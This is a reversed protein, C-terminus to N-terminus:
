RAPTAERRSGGGLRRLLVRVGSGLAAAGVCLILLVLASASETLVFFPIFEPAFLDRYCSAGGAEPFCPNDRFLSVEEWTRVFPYTSFVALGWLWFRKPILLGFALAVSAAVLPPLFLEVYFPLAELRDAWDGLPTSSFVPTRRGWVVFGLLAAALFTVATRGRNV